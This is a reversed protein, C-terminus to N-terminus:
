AEVPTFGLWKSFMKEARPLVFGIVPGTLLVGIVTGAGIVGGMLFGALTFMFDLTMKVWKLDIKTVDRLTLTLLDMTGVGFHISIVMAIGSGMLVVAPFLLVLKVLYPTTEPILASLIPVFLNILPGMLLGGIITGIHLYKRAFLLGFVILVINNILTVTGYSLNMLNHEGDVLVSIPDTGINVAYFMSIGFASITIAIVLILTKRVIIRPDMKM